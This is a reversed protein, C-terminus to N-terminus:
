LGFFMLIFIYIFIYIFLCNKKYLDQCTLDTIHKTHDPALQGFVSCYMMKNASICKTSSCNCCFEAFTCPMVHVCFAVRLM